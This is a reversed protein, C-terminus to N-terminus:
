RAPTAVEGAKVFKRPRGLRKHPVGALDTRKLGTAILRNALEVLSIGEADAKEVLLDFLEPGVYTKVDYRLPAETNTEAMHTKM